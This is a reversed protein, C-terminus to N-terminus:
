KKYSVRWFDQWDQRADFDDLASKSNYPFLRDLVKALGSPEDAPLKVERNTSIKGDISQPAIGEATMAYHIFLKAANPNKTGTAILGLKLYSYGPWPKLDNCLGLKYGVDQNDRFKSSALLGFFPAKQGPAGVAESIGQDADTLLPANAGIAKLWAHVATKEKTKLESGFQEKYAAAMKDDAYTAMQNFWDNYTSKKLPDYIAVKGKWKADTLEWLNKVPCSQYVETNYAWVNAESTLALPERYLTDIKEALDPPTWSMLFKQPLLQAIGAPADSILVVDGKVNKAQSERIVMEFQSNANVKIGTAKIGYKKTFADGMEVIKGTSDYITIPGEKKAAAILEELNFAEAAQGVGPAAAAMLGLAALAGVTLSLKM